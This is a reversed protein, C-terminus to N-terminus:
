DEITETMHRRLWARDVLSGDWISTLRLIQGQADLQLGTVGRPVASHANTWEYAGGTDGGVTHRVRARKGNPLDSVSRELYGRISQPGIVQTHLTLDEVVANDAFLEAAARSNGSALSHALESVTHQLQPSAYEGPKAWGFDQPFMSPPSKFGKLNKIGFHRGDWYDIWRVFKGDRIDVVSIGRIEHGFEQATNTFFLAAGTDNGLLDSSYSRASRPWTPMYHEFVGRLTAWDPFDFGATADWYTTDTPSFFAMTADVDGASKAALFASFLQEIGATALSGGSPTAAGAVGPRLMTAGAATLSAMGLGALAARRSVPVSDDFDPRNM